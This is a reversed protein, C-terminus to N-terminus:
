NTLPMTSQSKAVGGMEKQEGSTGGGSSGSSLKFLDYHVLVATLPIFIVSAIILIISLAKAWDPFDDDVTKGQPFFCL